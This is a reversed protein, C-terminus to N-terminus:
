LPTRALSAAPPQAPAPLSLTEPQTYTRGSDTPGEADIVLMATVRGRVTPTCSVYVTTSQGPGLQPTHALPVTFQGPPAEEVILGDRISLSRGGVNTLTVNQAAPQGARVMGLDFGGPTVQLVGHSGLPKGETSLPIQFSPVTVDSCVVAVTGAIPGSRQPRFEVDVWMFTSASVTLPLASTVTFVPTGPADQDSTIALGTVVIPGATTRL